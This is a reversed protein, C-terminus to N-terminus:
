QRRGSGRAAQAPHHLLETPLVDAQEVRPMAAGARQPFATVLGAQDAVLAVEEGALAVDFEVGYAGADGVIGQGISPRAASCMQSLAVARHQRRVGRPEREVGIRQLSGLDPAAKQVLRQGVLLEVLDPRVKLLLASPAPVIEARHYFGFGAAECARTRRM